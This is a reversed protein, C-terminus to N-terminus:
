GWHTYTYLVHRCCSSSSQTNESREVFFLLRINYDTSGGERFVVIFARKWESVRGSTRGGRRKRGRCGGEQTESLLGGFRLLLPPPSINFHRALNWFKNGSQRGGVERESCEVVSRGTRGVCVWNHASNGASTTCNLCVRAWAFSILSKIIHDHIYLTMGPWKLVCM